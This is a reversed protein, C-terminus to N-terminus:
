NQGQTLILKKPWLSTEKDLMTKLEIKIGYGLDPNRFKEPDLLPFKKKHAINDIDGRKEEIQRRAQRSKMIIDAAVPYKDLVQRLKRDEQNDPNYLGHDYINPIGM